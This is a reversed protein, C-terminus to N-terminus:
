FELGRPTLALLPWARPRTINRTFTSGTSSNVTTHSSMALYLGLVAGALGAVVMTRGVAVAGDGQGTSTTSSSTNTSFAPSNSVNGAAWVIAGAYASILGAGILIAGGAVRATSGAQVDLTVSDRDDPLMFRSTARVGDGQIIYLSNSELMKNCPAFCVPVVGGGPVVRDLRTRPDDSNMVVHVWRAGYVPAAPGPAPQAGWAGPPPPPPYYTNPAPGPAPTGWPAPAAGPPPAGAPGPYAPQARAVGAAALVMMWGLALPRCRAARWTWGRFRDGCVMGALM